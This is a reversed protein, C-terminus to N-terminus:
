LCGRTVAHSFTRRTKHRDHFEAPLSLSTPFTSKNRCPHSFLPLLLGRRAWYATVCEWVCLSLPVSPPCYLLSPLHIFLPRTNIVEGHGNQRIEKPLFIRQTSKLIAAGTLSPHFSVVKAFSSVRTFPSLWKQFLQPVWLTLSLLDLPKVFHTKSALDTAHRKRKKGGPCYVHVSSSKNRRWKDPDTCGRYRVFWCVWLTPIRGGPFSVWVNFGKLALPQVLYKDLTM